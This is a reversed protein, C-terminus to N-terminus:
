LCSRIYIYVIQDRRLLSDSLCNGHLRHLTAAASPPYAIRAHPVGYVDRDEALVELQDPQIERTDSKPSKIQMFFRKKQGGARAGGASFNEM